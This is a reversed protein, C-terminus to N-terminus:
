LIIKVKINYIEIITNLYLNATACAIAFSGEMIESIEMGHVHTYTDSFFDGVVYGHFNPNYHQAAYSGYMGLLYMNLILDPVSLYALYMNYSSYSKEVTSIESCRSLTSRRLRQQARTTPTTTTGHTKLQVGFPILLALILVLSFFTSISSVAIQPYITMKFVSDQVFPPSRPGTKCCEYISYSTNHNSVDVMKPYPFDSLGCEMAHIDGYANYAM